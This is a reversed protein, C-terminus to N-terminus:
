TDISSLNGLSEFCAIANGLLRLRNRRLSPNEDNVTTHTFFEDLPERLRALVGAAQSFAENAVLDPVVAAEGVAKYLGREEETVLLDPDVEGTTKGGDKTKEAVLINDARRFASLLNSGDQSQVIGTLARVHHMFLVFDNATKRAAGYAATFIDPRIGEARAQVRLREHLFGMIEAQMAPQAPEYPTLAQAVITETDLRCSNERIIRIIGLAARRLAFPDGSGTPAHGSAFFGALQDFKDALAVAIGVAERPVADSPGKPLYHDRVADAVRPDEGDHRAYYGGMVGQLEPFEGVMGTTLDAKALLAAREALPIEAGSLTAIVSALRVIRRVRGGQTGLDAHFVIGDLAPVRHELRVKRDLDWFHRADAFRARLVRENGEVISSGGDAAELNAVFAFWPAASGDGHRTAFYRQNVRMSVQMVEAPLDMFAEDIRGLLAVPWEVLGAVEEVLGPDDAVVIAQEAARAAIQDAVMRRRDEASAVVHREALAREWDEVGRVALAGPAHVRHGETERGSALKHGDDDNTALTFPVIEGDLLCVIRRLPRIWTFTSTGGWRMAKPWPFRRLLAPMTSAVLDAASTSAAERHLVWFGGEERLAERAAGHKRLFGAVAQEPATIRPGRESTASAAVAPALKAALAIRRPGSFARVADPVLAALAECVLRELDAAARKQMRAPIEESFLEM